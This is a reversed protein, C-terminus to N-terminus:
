VDFSKNKARNKPMARALSFALQGDCAQEYTIGLFTLTAGEYSPAAKINSTQILWEVPM